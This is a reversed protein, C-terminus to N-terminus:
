DKLKGKLFAIVTWLALLALSQLVLIAGDPVLLKSNLLAVWKDATLLGYGAVGVMDLKDLVWDLIKKDM